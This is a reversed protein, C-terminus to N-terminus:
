RLLIMKRTDSFDEAQMKYYYIGSAVMKGLNDKGDWEIQYQGPQYNKNEVERIKQGLADYVLIKVRTKGSTTPVTFRIITSPNFPNPYNQSLSFETAINEQEEEIGALMLFYWLVGNMLQARDLPDVITEFTFGIYVLQADPGGETYPGTYQIGAIRLNDYYMASSSGNAPRIYDPYDEIYLDPGDQTGFILDMEEFATGPEGLVHQSGALDGRYEAKLLEQYRSKEEATSGDIDYGIESGSIFLKGGSALYDFIRQQDAAALSEDSRSDDGCIYVLMKFSEPNIDGNQIASYYCSSFGINNYLLAEGYNKVFPHNPSRWSAQRDFNDVILAKPEDFISTGYTDSPISLLPEEEGLSGIFTNTDVAVVRFYLTGANGDYDYLYSTTERDLVAEDVLPENWSLGDGSMYLRYGAIDGELSPYWSISIEKTKRSLLNVYKIVPAQPPDLKDVKELRFADLVLRTELGSLGSLEFYGTSDKMSSGITDFHVPTPSILAWKSLYVDNYETFRSVTQGIENVFTYRASEGLYNTASSIFINYDGKETVTPYMRAVHSGDNDTAKLRQGPLLGDLEVDFNDMEWSGELEFVANRMTSINMVESYFAEVEIKFTYVYHMTNPTEAQDSAEVEVIVNQAFPFPEPPNYLVQVESATGGILPEVIEGNIRMVITTQDIGDLEDRIFFYVSSNRSINESFPQPFPNAVYPAGFGLRNRINNRLSVIEEYLNEGPCATASFNRHGMLSDPNVQYKYALWSWMESLSLLADQTPLSDVLHFNGMYSIGINGTNNGGVHTGRFHAPVGEYFNGADDVCFHYGIDQWGRGYQHFDQIFRMEEMGESVSKVRKGATHHQTLRFPQHPIYTGIPDSAGWSERFIVPPPPISDELFSFVKDLMNVSEHLSHEHKEVKISEIAYIEVKFPSKVGSNMWRFKINRTLGTELDFRAWFRGNAFIKTFVDRWTSWQNKKVKYQIQLTANTDSLTGNFLIRNFEANISDSVTSEYLVSNGSLKDPIREFKFGPNSTKNFHLLVGSEQASILTFSSYLFLLVVWIIKYM